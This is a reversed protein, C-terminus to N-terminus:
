SWVWGRLALDDSWMALCVPLPIDCSRRHPTRFGQNHPRCYVRIQRESRDPCCSRRQVCVRIAFATASDLTLQATTLRRHAERPLPGVPEAYRPRRRAGFRYWSRQLQPPAAAHLGPTNLSPLRARPSAWTTCWLPWILLPALAYLLALSEIANTPWRCVSHSSAIPSPRPFSPACVGPDHSLACRHPLSTLLVLSLCRPISTKRTRSLPSDAQLARWISLPPALGSRPLVLGSAAFRGGKM